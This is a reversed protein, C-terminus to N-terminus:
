RMLILGGRRRSRRSLKMAKGINKVRRDRRLSEGASASLETAPMRVLDLRNCARKEKWVGTERNGGEATMLKVSSM